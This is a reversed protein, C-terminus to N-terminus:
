IRAGNWDAVWELGIFIWYYPFTQLSFDFENVCGGVNASARETAAHTRCLHFTIM